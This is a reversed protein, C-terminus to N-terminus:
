AANTRTQRRTLRSARLRIDQATRWGIEGRFHHQRGVAQDAEPLLGLALAISIHLWGKAVAEKMEASLRLLLLRKQVYRHSRGVAAAIDFTRWGLDVLQRYAAAEELPAVGPRRLEAFAHAM